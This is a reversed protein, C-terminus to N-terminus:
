RTTESVDLESVYQSSESVHETEFKLNGLKKVLNLFGFTTVNLFAISLKSDRCHAM